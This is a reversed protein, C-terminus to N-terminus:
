QAARETWQVRSNESMRIDELSLSTASVRELRLLRSNSMPPPKAFVCCLKILVINILSRWFSFWLSPFLHKEHFWMTDLILYLVHVPSSKIRLRSHIPNAMSVGSLKTTSEWMAISVLAKGGPALHKSTPQSLVHQCLLLGHVLTAFRTVYRPSGLSGM